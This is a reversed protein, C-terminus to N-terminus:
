PLCPEGMTADLARWSIRTRAEAHCAASALIGDGEVSLYGRFANINLRVIM